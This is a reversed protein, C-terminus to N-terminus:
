NDNLTAFSARLKNIRSSNAKSMESLHVLYTKSLLKFKQQFKGKVTLFMSLYESYSLSGMEYLTKAESLLITLEIISDTMYKSQLNEDIAKSSYFMDVMFQDYEAKTTLKCDYLSTILQQCFVLMSFSFQANNYIPKIESQYASLRKQTATNTPLTNTNM